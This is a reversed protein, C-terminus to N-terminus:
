GFLNQIQSLIHEALARKHVACSKQAMDYISLTLGPVIPSSAPASYELAPLLVHIHGVEKTDVWIPTSGTSTSPLWGFEM